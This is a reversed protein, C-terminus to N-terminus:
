PKTLERIFSTTINRVDDETLKGVELYPMLADILAGFFKEENEKRQQLKKIQEQYTAM